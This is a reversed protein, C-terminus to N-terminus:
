IRGVFYGPSIKASTDISAKSEQAQVQMAVVEGVRRLDGDLLLLRDGARIGHERGLALTLEWQGGKRVMRTIPAIGQRALAQERKGSLYYSVGLFLIAMPLTVASIRWAPIGLFRRSVSRFSARYHAEDTFIRVKFRPTEKDPVTHKHFVMISAEGEHAAPDVKLLGRWTRGRAQLFAVTVMPNECRYALDVLGEVPGQLEGSIYQTTGPFARFTSKPELHGSVFTDVISLLFVASVLAGVFGVLKRTRQSPGDVIL